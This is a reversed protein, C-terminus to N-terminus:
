INAHIILDEGKRKNSKCNISRNSKVISIDFGKYLDHVLETNSNTLVMKVKKKALKKFIFALDHHSSIHFQEKTYRKFDAYGELPVYPPDFFIFDKKSIDFNILTRFDMCRISRYKLIKAAGKIRDRQIFDPNKYRGFPVNFEGKKNVRYLGNFCTRNLYIMRAAAKVKSIKKYNQARIKYFFEEDYKMKLLENIVENSKTSINKYVNILEPNSDSILYNEPSLDFFVAGGGLFPELYRNITQPYLKRISLLLQSKGGAWKLFPKNM